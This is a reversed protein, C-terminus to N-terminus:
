THRACWANFECRRCSKVYHERNFGAYDYNKISDILQRLTQGFKEHMGCSYTIEALVAESEPDWYHMSIKKSGPKLVELHESQEKLVFMYVMTQYSSALKGATRRSLPSVQRSGTKWDWIHAEGEGIILLDLNAELNLSSGTMRLRYEPLFKFGERLPFNRKLAIIWKSLKEFDEDGKSPECDIGMFYRRALLHFSSGLRLRRQAGRDTVTKWNLNEVYRLRFKMPCTCFTELSHQTFVFGESLKLRDM